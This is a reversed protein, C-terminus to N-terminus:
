ILLKLLIEERKGDGGRQRSNTYIKRSPNIGIYSKPTLELLKQIEVVPLPLESIYNRM